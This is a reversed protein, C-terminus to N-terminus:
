KMKNTIANYSRARASLDQVFSNVDTPNVEFDHIDYVVSQTTSPTRTVFDPVNITSINWPIQSQHWLNEMMEHNFVMEGGALNAMPILNGNQTILGEPLIENIEALGPRANKTGDKYYNWKGTEKDYESGILKGLRQNEEALRIKEDNDATHWKASNEAMIKKTLSTVGNDSGGRYDKSLSVGMKNFSEQVAQPLEGFIQVVRSVADDLDIVGNEFQSIATGLQDQKATLDNISETQKIM